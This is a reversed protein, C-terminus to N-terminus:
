RKKAVKGYVWLPGWFPVSVVVAATMLTYAVVEVAVMTLGVLFTQFESGRLERDKSM